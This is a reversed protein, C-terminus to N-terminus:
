ALRAKRLAPLVDPEAVPKGNWLAVDIRRVPRCAAPREVVGALADIVGALDSPQWAALTTIERGHNEVLAV